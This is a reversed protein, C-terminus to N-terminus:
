GNRDNPILLGRRDTEQAGRRTQRDRSRLLEPPGFQSGMNDLRDWEGRLKDLESKIRAVRAETKPDLPQSM